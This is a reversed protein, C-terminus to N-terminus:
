DIWESDESMLDNKMAYAVLASRSKIGLKEQLSARHAEVTRVSLHLRDAIEGNTHGFAIAALVKVERVSLNKLGNGSQSRLLQMGLGVPLYDKGSLTDRIAQILEQMSSGTTIASEAGAQLAEVLSSMPNEPRVVLLIKTKPLHEHIESTLSPQSALNGFNGLSSGLIVLEAGCRYLDEQNEVDNIMCVVELSPDQEIGVQLGDLFMEYSDVIAIKHKRASLRRGEDM